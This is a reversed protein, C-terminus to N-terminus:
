IHQFFIRKQRYTHIFTSGSDHIYITYNCGTFTLHLSLNGIKFSTEMMMETKFSSICELPIVIVSLVFTKRTGHPETEVLFFSSPGAM